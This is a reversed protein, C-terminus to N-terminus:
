KNLPSLPYKDTRAKQDSLKNEQISLMFWAAIGMIIIVLMQSAHAIYAYSTAQESAIGYLETLTIITIFHYTGIGGPMPALIAISGVALLTLGAMASLHSTAGIAFFCLYVTLFYLGWIFVTQLLFAVKSEMQWLTKIGAAFGAFQRKLKYFFSGQPPNSLKKKLIFFMAIAIFILASVVIIVMLMNQSGMRILPEFFFESLFGKVFQFQFSFTLLVIIVLSFFDVVRESVVTGVLVNFPVKGTKTLVACKTIEGLRPVALNSLYGTMVAIFTQKLSTSYGASSILINWRVARVVHSFLSIVMVLVIWFYNAGKLESIIMEMDQGRTILWLILIGLLLFIFVKTYRGINKKM